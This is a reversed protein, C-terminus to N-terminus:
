TNFNDLLSCPAEGGAANSHRQLLGPTYGGGKSVVASDDAADCYM